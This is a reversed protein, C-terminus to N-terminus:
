SKELACILDIYAKNTKINNIIEISIDDVQIEIDENSDEDSSSSNKGEFKSMVFRSSFLFFLLNSVKNDENENFNILYLYYKM